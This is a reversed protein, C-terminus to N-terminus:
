EKIEHLTLKREVEDIKEQQNISNPHQTALEELLIDFNPYKKAIREFKKYLKKSIRCLHYAKWITIFEDWTGSWISQIHAKAEPTPNELRDIHDIEHLFWNYDHEGIEQLIAHLQETAALHKM